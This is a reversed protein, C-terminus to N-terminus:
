YVCFASYVKLKKFYFFMKRGIEAVIEVAMAIYQANGFRELVCAQMIDQLSRFYKMQEYYCQARRYYARSNHENLEIAKSADRIAGVYNEKLAHVTARNEYCVSLASARSTTNTKELIGIARSYLLIARTYLGTNKAAIADRFTPNANIDSVSSFDTLNNPLFVFHESEYARTSKPKLCLKIKDM